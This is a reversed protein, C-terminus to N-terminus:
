VAPLPAQLSPQVASTGLTAHRNRLILRGGSLRSRGKGIRTMTAAVGLLPHLRSTVNVIM